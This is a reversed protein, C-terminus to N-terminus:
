IEKNFNCKYIKQKYAIVKKIVEEPNELVVIKHGNVLTIITDPTKEIYEILESNLIIEQNNIRSLRIMKDVGKLM